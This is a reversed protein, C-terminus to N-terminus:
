AILRMYLTRIGLHRTVTDCGNRNPVLNWSEDVNRHITRPMIGDRRLATWLREGPVSRNGSGAFAIFSFVGRKALGNNDPNIALRQRAPHLM